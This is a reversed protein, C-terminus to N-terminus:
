KRVDSSTKVTIKKTKLKLKLTDKEEKQHILKEILWHEIRHHTPILIAAISVFILIELVPTHHTLEVVYPHLLLTLYEFLVLLSIIGLVKIIRVHIKIRSLLVTMLFFFPIFMGIFLLQLQQSRERMAIRKNEEMEAQRLQENSSIIQLEKIKDRSNISDNLTKVYDVYLFASDINRSEKYLNTLLEAAELEHSLFGDKKAINLSLSAFYVASDKRKLKQYVASIGLTAECFIDDDGAASLYDLAKKYTILSLSDKLQRAYTHALGTLSTGIYDGDHLQEAIQLSKDFYFYASDSINLKNYADGINLAINYKFPEINYRTTNSDAAYYYQLGKRYEEQFVYVIGINNLASTLNYTNGNKEELQLKKFNFELARPYNGIKRFVEALIGLSRSEGEIYKIKKASFLAKQALQLATDPNYASVVDALQWMLKVKGTDTKETALLVRLSDAKQKQASAMHMCCIFLLIYFSKAALNTCALFLVRM